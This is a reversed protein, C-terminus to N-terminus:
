FDRRLALVLGSRSGYVADPGAGSWALEVQFSRIARALGVRWDYQTPGVGPAPSAGGVRTLVGAHASLRWNPAPQVASAVEGYLTRIRSGFYSPSYSLRATLRRATVGVYAEGYQTAGQGGYYETYNAHTLGLDLTPGADLRHAWGAYERVSLPQVGHHSTAAIDGAVGAYLGSAADYAVDLGAVPQNESVSRGRFRADSAIEASARVQAAAGGALGLM